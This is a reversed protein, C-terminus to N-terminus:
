KSDYVATSHINMTSLVPGASTTRLVVVNTRRGALTVEQDAQDASPVAGSFLGCGLRGWRPLPDRTTRKDLKSVMAKYKSDYSMSSCILHPRINPHLLQLLSLSVFVVLSFFSPVWYCPPSFHLPVSRFAAM